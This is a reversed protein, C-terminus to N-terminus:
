KESSFVVVADGAQLGTVIEAYDDSELGVTVKVEKVTNRDDLIEIYVDGNQQHLARVPARLVGDRRDTEIDLNATMGSRLREDESDFRITTEYFIVNDVVTEAPQIAVVTGTWQEISGFADLTIGVSDGISLHAIDIESINAKVELNGKANLLIVTQNPTLSEGVEASVLTITGDVPAIIRRKQYENQFGILRANEASVVARQAAVVEDRMGTRKLTLSAEAESLLNENTKVANSAANLATRANAVAIEASIVDTENLRLQLNLNTRDNSLAQLSTSVASLATNA